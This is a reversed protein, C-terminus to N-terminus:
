YQLTLQYIFVYESLYMCITSVTHCNWIYIRIQIEWKKNEIHSNKVILLLNLFLFNVKETCFQQSSENSDQAKCLKLFGNETGVALEVEKISKTVADFKTYPNLSISLVRAEFKVSDVFQAKTPNSIDLFNVFNKAAFCFLGSQFIDCAHSTYWNPSNSLGRGKM